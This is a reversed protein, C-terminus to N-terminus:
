KDSLSLKIPEIAFTIGKENHDAIVFRLTGETQQYFPAGKGKALLETAKQQSKEATLTPEFLNIFAAIYNTLTARNIKETKALTEAKETKEETPEAPIYTLQLSRITRQNKDLAM